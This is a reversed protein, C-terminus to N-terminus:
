NGKLAAKFQKKIPRRLKKWTYYASVYPRTNINGGPLTDTRFPYEFSHLWIEVRRNAGPTVLFQLDFISDKNVYMRPISFAHGYDIKRYLDPYLSDVSTYVTDGGANRSRIYLGSRWQKEYIAPIPTPDLGKKKLSQIIKEQSTKKRVYKDLKVRNDDTLRRSLSTATFAFLAFLCVTFSAVRRLNNFRYRVPQIAVALPLILLALFDTYDVVRTAPIGLNRDLYRILGDSLPSKWWIFFIGIGALIQWNRGPFFARLFIALALLGAFDSLKGTIWNHFEYKLYFDNILLLALGLLFVPHLLITQPKTKM